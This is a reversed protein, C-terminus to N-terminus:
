STRYRALKTAILFFLATGVLPALFTGGFTEDYFETLYNFADPIATIVKEVYYLFNHFYSYFDQGLDYFKELISLM